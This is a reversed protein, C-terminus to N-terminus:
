TICLFTARGQGELKLIYKILGIEEVETGDKWNNLATVNAESLDSLTIERFWKSAAYVMFWTPGSGVDLLREGSIEGTIIYMNFIYTRVPPRFSLRASMYIAVDDRVVTGRSGERQDPSCAWGYEGLTAINRLKDSSWETVIKVFICPNDQYQKSRFISFLGYHHNSLKSIRRGILGFRSKWM